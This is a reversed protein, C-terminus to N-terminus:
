QTKPFLINQVTSLLQQPTFPKQLFSSGPLFGDEDEVTQYTWGSIVLVKIAPYFTTINEAVTRGRDSALRHDIILLDIQQDQLSQCIVTVESARTADLITYGEKSLVLRVLNRVIPEDDVILVTPVREGVVDLAPAPPLDVPTRTKVIAGNYYELESKKDTYSLGLWQLESLNLVGPV